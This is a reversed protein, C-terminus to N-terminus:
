IKPLVVSSIFNAYLNTESALNRLSHISTNLFREFVYECGHNFHLPSPATIYRRLLHLITITITFLCRYLYKLFLSEATFFYVTFDRYLIYEHKEKKNQKKLSVASKACCINFSVSYASSFFFYFLLRAIANRVGFIWTNRSNSTM